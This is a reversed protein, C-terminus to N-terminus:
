DRDKDKLEKKRKKAEMIREETTQCREVSSSEPLKAPQSVMEYAQKVPFATNTKTHSVTAKM